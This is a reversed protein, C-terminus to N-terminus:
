CGAELHLSSTPLYPLLSTVFRGQRPRRECPFLSPVTPPVVWGRVNQLTMLVSSNCFKIAPLQQFYLVPLPCLLYALSRYHPLSNLYSKFFISLRGVWGRAVICFSSLFSTAPPADHFNNFLFPRIQLSPQMSPGSATHLPPTPIPHAPRRAMTLPPSRHLQHRGFCFM